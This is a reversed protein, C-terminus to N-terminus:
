FWSTSKKTKKTKKSKSGRSGSTKSKMTKSKMTTKCNIDILLLWANHKLLKTNNLTIELDDKRDKEEVEKIKKELSAMLCRLSDLYAEIKLMNGHQKALCMWGLKEYKAVMWRQLGCSTSEHGKNTLNYKHLHEGVPITMLRGACEQLCMMNKMLIALDDKRDEDRTNEIKKAACALFRQISDMYAKIKLGSKHEKAMVMWGLHQFMHEHWKHLGNFTCDYTNM